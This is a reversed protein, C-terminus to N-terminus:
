VCFFEATMAARYGQARLGLGVPDLHISIWVMTAIVVISVRGAVMCTSLSVKLGLGAM